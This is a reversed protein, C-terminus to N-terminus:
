RLRRVEFGARALDGPIARVNARNIEKAKEPLEDWPVLWPHVKRNRDSAETEGYRWGRSRREEQWRDHEMRAMTEVEDTAFELQDADWDVLPVIACGIANLKVSIHDAEARNSDQLEEPLEEWPVMSPSNTPTQGTERQHRLYEEHQARALVEHTGGVLLDPTCTRELLGFAYLNEFLQGEQTELLVALGAAHTLRVVVPVGCGRLHHHLTLGAALSQSNDDLCVYAVTADCLGAESFLFRGQQFEASDTDAQVPTLDCCASLRPYTSCLTDRIREAKRDVVTIRLRRGDGRHSVYWERAAQVILGSGLQGAAVVVMHPSATCGTDEQGFPPHERLLLRAGADFINFFELRLEGADRTVIERERLLSCLYPDVIHVLCTPGPVGASSCVNDAVAAIQANTGDDGCMALLYRARHARAARLLDPDTANGVLVIAGDRRSHDLLGNSRDNDVVVVSEGCGLFSRALLAGKRGHGAIIVHGKLRWLRLSQLRERLIAVLAQFATYFTLSPALFRAVQLEWSKPGAASGSELVFLQMSLYILDWSSHTQRLRLFLKDFGLYGLVAALLGLAIIVPWQYSHWWRKV